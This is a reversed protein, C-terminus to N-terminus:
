LLFFCKSTRITCSLHLSSFLIETTSTVFCTEFELDAFRGCFCCCQWKCVQPDLGVATVRCFGARVCKSSLFSQWGYLMM